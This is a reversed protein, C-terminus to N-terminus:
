RLVRLVVVAVVHGVFHAVEDASFVLISGAVHATAGAFLGTCFPRFAKFKSIM